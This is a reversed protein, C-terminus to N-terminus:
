FYFRELRQFWRQISVSGFDLKSKLQEIAKHDTILTFRTVLVFYQFKDIAWLAALTEKATIKYIQETGNFIRLIYAVPNTDLRLIDGINMKSADTELTFSKNPDPIYLKLDRCWKDKIKKFVSEETNGWIFKVDKGIMGNLSKLDSSLNHAFM